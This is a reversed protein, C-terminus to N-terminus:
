GLLRMIDAPTAMRPGAARATPSAGPSLAAVLCSTSVLALAAPDVGRALCVSLVAEDASRGPAEGEGGGAGETAAVYCGREAEALVAALLPASLRARGPAPLNPAPRGCARAATAEMSWAARALAEADGGAAADLDGSLPSGFAQSHLITTYASGHLEVTAGGLRVARM